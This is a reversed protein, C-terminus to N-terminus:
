AAAPAMAYTREYEAPSVYGLTSHRRRRNYWAEIFEFIARRADERRPWPRRYLLECKLTAFFSEAVANDYADAVTGMSAVLGSDRLERGFALSTYQCGHDSHHVVGPAPRRQWLAMGLAELVLETRLHDAMAWGVVRRSFADLVVALYLWGEWTRVYTIDAVYLRDPAVPLFDRKVLDEAPEATPDGVTGVTTRQARRRHCGVVSALRMLRAVRKRGCRLQYAGNPDVLEAHIRPAGYTGRSVTHIVHITATLAADADARASAPRELWAYYGSPSVGLCRCLVRVPISSLSAGQAGESAETKEARCSAIFRFATV